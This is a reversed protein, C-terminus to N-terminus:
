INHVMFKHQPSSRSERYLDLSYFVKTEDKAHINSLRRFMHCYMLILQRYLDLSYFVKIEDKAHINSLRRFMHCHM